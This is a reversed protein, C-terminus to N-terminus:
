MSYSSNLRKPKANAIKFVDTVMYIPVLILRAAVMVLWYVISVVFFQLFKEVPETCPAGYQFVAHVFLIWGILIAGWIIYRFIPFFLCILSKLLGLIVVLLIIFGTILLTAFM